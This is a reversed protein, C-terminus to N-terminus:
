RPAAAPVGGCGGGRFVRRRPPRSSRGACISLPQPSPVALRGHLTAISSPRPCTAASSAAPPLPAPPLQRLCTWTLAALPRRGPLPLPTAAAFSPYGCPHEGGRALRRPRSYFAAERVLVDPPSSAPAVATFSAVPDRSPRPPRRGGRVLGSPRGHPIHSTTASSTAVPLPLVARKRPRPWPIAFPIM